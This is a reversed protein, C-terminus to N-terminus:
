SLLKQLRRAKRALKNKKRRETKRKELTQKTYGQRYGEPLLGRKFLVKPTIKRRFKDAVEHRTIEKTKEVTEVTEEENIIVNQM